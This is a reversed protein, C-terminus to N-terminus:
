LMLYEALISNKIHFYGLVNVDNTHLDKTQLLHFFEVCTTCQFITQFYM